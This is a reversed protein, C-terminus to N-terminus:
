RVSPMPDDTARDHDVTSVTARPGLIPALVLASRTREVAAHRRIREIAREMDTMTPARLHVVADADGAVTYAAVVEPHPDLLDHIQEPNTRVRCTLELFAEVVAGSASDAITATFGTIVGASRLRDVRRKIAPTSLGVREGIDRYSRRGNEVLLRVIQGDIVDQSM